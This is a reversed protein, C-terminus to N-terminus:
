KERKGKAYGLLKQILLVGILGAVFAILAYVYKAVFGVDKSLFGLIAGFVSGVIVPFTESAKGTKQPCRSAM